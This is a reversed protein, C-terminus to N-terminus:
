TPPSIREGLSSEPPGSQMRWLRAGWGCGLLPIVALVVKASPHKRPHTPVLLITNVQPRFLWVYGRELIRHGFSVLACALLITWFDGTQYLYQAIGFQEVDYSGLAQEVLAYLIQAM